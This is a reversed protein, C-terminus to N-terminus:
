KTKFQHVVSEAVNERGEGQGSVVMYYYTMNPRLGTLQVRHTQAGAGKQAVADSSARQLLRSKSTGYRVISTGGLNTQWSITASNNTVQEVVPPRVIKVSGTSTQATIPLASILVLASVIQLRTINM